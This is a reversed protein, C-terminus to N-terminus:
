RDFSVHIHDFHGGTAEHPDYIGGGGYPRGWGSDTDGSGATWIRGQWIIYSVHLVEAHTRLWNAVEWGAALQEGQVFEGARGPFFDCARGKPHDSSPNWLHPDWCGTYRILAGASYGGFVRSVEQLAHLTAGTLCGTSTPDDMVCGSDPGAYATPAPGGAGGRPACVDLDTLVVDDGVEALLNAAHEEWRSYAHPFASRQVTQAAEWLPMSEWGPVELLREYFIGASYEPDQIQAPTGWGQSPRQQFLGLSDRDGYDLNRLTSEQMATALAVWLGREPVQMRRGVEVIIAANRRQEDSTPVQGGTAGTLGSMWVLANVGALGAAGALVLVLAAVALRRVARRAATVAHGAGDVV